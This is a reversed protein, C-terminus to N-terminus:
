APSLAGVREAIRDAATHLEAREAPTLAVDVIETVGGRGLRA